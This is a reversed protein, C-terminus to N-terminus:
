QKKLFNSVTNGIRNFYKEVLETKDGVKVGKLDLIKQFDADSGGFRDSFSNYTEVISKEDSGIVKLIAEAKGFETNVFKTFRNSSGDPIKTPLDLLCKKITSIDLLLAHAGTDSIRHCKYINQTIRLIFSAAFLDCFYKYHNTSLLEAELKASENIISNISEVYPSHDSIKVDKDGWDLKTMTHLHPELKAEIGYVLSKVGKGIVGSYENKENNFDIMEKYREIILKKFKDSIQPITKSFYESTNIILCIVVDEQHEHPRGVDSSIKSSLIAAYKILYKKFLGYLSSFPEGRSLISCREMAKRFYQVLDTGSSLVKNTADEELAWKEESVLRTIAEDMKKDEEQIYLDMYPDFSSSIIGKFREYGKDQPQVKPSGNNNNNNNNNAGAGGNANGSENDDLKQRRQNWRRNIAAVSNDGRDEDDVVMDPDQPSQIPSVNASNRYVASQAFANVMEKEFELTKNLANLLVNIDLENKTKMLIDQVALKTICCFEYAINEEMKWEPPFIGTYEEKFTNLEKVLWKFRRKIDKLQSHEEHSSFARKYAQLHIDCLWRMFDKKTEGGLADIVLCASAWKNEGDVQNSPVYSKFDEYIKEKVSSRIRELERNLSAIKPSDRYDKFGQAFEATAELLRAVTAYQKKEVMENLQEVGMVMMHLRKLTTIAATLNKKAFDLSKIDKCIETVMQESKIAKTKIDAIKTLLENISRKANELDEKGKSGTSSQMRVEQVIEEDIKHIKLRLKNMHADIHVLSQENTFNDNIYKVPNFDHRDIPDQSPIIDNIAAQLEPSFMDNSWTLSGELTLNNSKEM